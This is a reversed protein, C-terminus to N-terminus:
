YAPYSTLVLKATMETYYWKHCQSILDLREQIALLATSGMGLPTPGEKLGWHYKVIGKHRVISREGGTNCMRVEGQLWNFFVLAQNGLLKTHGQLLQKANTQSDFWWTTSTDRRGKRRNVRCSEVPWSSAAAHSVPSIELQQQQRIFHKLALPIINQNTTWAWFITTTFSVSNM